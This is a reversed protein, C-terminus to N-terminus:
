PRGGDQAPQVLGLHISVRVEDGVLVGGRALLLNWTLGFQKRSL